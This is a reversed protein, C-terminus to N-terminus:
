TLFLAAVAGGVVLLATVVVLLLSFNNSSQGVHGRKSSTRPTASRWKGSSVRHKGSSVRQKGSSVRQKGSGRRGGTSRGPRARRGGKPPPDLDLDRLVEALERGDAPRADPSKDLCRGVLAVLDQPVELDELMDLPPPTDLHKQMLLRPEPANFPLRDLLLEFLTVGLAYVDGRPEATPTGGSWAQQVLEPAIYAPTGYLAGATGMATGASQALGLDVVKVQGEPTLLMNEPKVDGHVMGAAHIAGLGDAAQAMWAVAETPTPPQERLRDRLSSGEVMELVLFPVREEEGASVVRVVNPHMLAALARGERLFAEVLGPQGWARHPDLIKVVAPTGLTQHTARFTIGMGGRALVEDLRCGGLVRGELGTSAEV